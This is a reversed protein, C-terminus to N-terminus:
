FVLIWSLFPSLIVCSEYFLRITLSKFIGTVRCCQNHSLNQAHASHLFCIIPRGAPYQPLFPLNHAMFKSSLQPLLGTVHNLHIRFWNLMFQHDPCNIKDSLVNEYPVDTGILGKERLVDLGGRSLSLVIEPQGRGCGFERKDTNILGEKELESLRRWIAQKNKQFLAAIQAVTLMRHEALSELTKCDSEKLRFAM